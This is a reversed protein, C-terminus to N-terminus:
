SDGVLLIKKGRKGHGVHGMTSTDAPGFQQSLGLNIVTEPPRQYQPFFPTSFCRAYMGRHWTGPVVDPEGYIAELM